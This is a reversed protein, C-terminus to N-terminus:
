NHIAGECCPTHDIEGKIRAEERIQLRLTNLLSGLLNKGTGHCSPRSCTCIGWINDHWTNWEVIPGEWELLRSRFPEQQFKIELLDRMVVIKRCEWDDLCDGSIRIARGARKAQGPTRLKSIMLCTDYDDSKAAQYAHETTRYLIGQYRIGGPIEEFNSFPFRRDSM